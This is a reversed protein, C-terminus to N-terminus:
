GFLSAIYTAAAAFLMLGDIIFYYFLYGQKKLSFRYAVGVTAATIVFAIIQHTDNFYFRFLVGMILYAAFLLLMIGKVAKETLVTTLSQLGKIKDVETDRADFMICLLLMFIFRICFLLLLAQMSNAPSYMYPLCVTIYAWTFSLLITKLLGAKRTFQLWKFPLLPVAYLFTLAAAVAIAPLITTLYFLSVVVGIAAIAFVLLNSRHATLYTIINKKSFAWGSLLWYFNYSCITACFVFSYFWSSLEIYLLLATQFCLAAACIAIFLSHSVIFYLLRM